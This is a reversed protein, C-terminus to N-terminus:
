SMIVCIDICLPGDTRKCLEFDVSYLVYLLLAIM